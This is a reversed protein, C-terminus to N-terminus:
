IRVTQREIYGKMIRLTVNRLKVPSKHSSKGSNISGGGSARVAGAYSKGPGLIESCARVMHDVTSDDHNVLRIESLKNRRFGSADYAQLRNVIINACRDVPFNFIGSSLAPIAVSQLDLQEAQKLISDIARGLPKSADQIEKESPRWNLKPGVAHILWKCPLSGARTVVAEGTPVKRQIKIIHNSEQQIVQGGAEALAFALGGIHDLDENAANVVADVVHTTLDDKWVSVKLGKSLNISYKEEASIKAKKAANSDWSTANIGYLIASCGFKSYVVTNLAERCRMVIRAEEQQLTIVNEM